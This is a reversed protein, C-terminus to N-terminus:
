PQDFTELVGRVYGIARAAAGIGDPVYVTPEISIDRSYGNRFLAAFIPAFRENGQGPGGRTRDNIHIHGIKGTPLWHDLVDSLPGNEMKAAHNCDFMTIVAPNGISDVIAVAESITNIVLTSDTALPEICYTQGCAQAIEAINSFCDHARNMAIERTEGPAIERHSGHILYSGGLDASLEILGKMVDVTWGRIKDDPTTISLGKPATLLWHLGVIEIGADGAARRAAARAEATMRHPEASLTYPAVELGDYGLAAAYECQKAFPMPELLENCLAIRM